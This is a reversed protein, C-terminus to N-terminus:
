RCIESWPMLHLLGAIAHLRMYEDANLMPIDRFSGAELTYEPSPATVIFGNNGRTELWYAGDIGAALKTNHKVIDSDIRYLWHMGGSPTREQLVREAIGPVTDEAIDYWVSIVDARHKKPINKTDFDLAELNGSSRGCLIGVAEWATARETLEEWTSKKDYFKKYSTLTPYKKKPHCPVANLGADRYQQIIEKM